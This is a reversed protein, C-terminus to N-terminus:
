CRRVGVAVEHLPQRRFDCRLHRGLCNFNYTVIKCSRRYAYYLVVLLHQFVSASLRATKLADFYYRFDFDDSYGSNGLDAAIVKHIGTAM